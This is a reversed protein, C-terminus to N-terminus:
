QRLGSLHRSRPCLGLESHTRWHNSESFRAPVFCGHKGNIKAINVASFNLLFRIPYKIRYYVPWFSFLIIMDGSFTLSPKAQRM